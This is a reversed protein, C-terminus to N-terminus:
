LWGKITAWISKSPAKVPTAGADTQPLASTEAAPASTESAAVQAPSIVSAFAPLKSLTLPGAIGDADLGHSAQFAAVAKATGPGFQGDAGIGLAEQLKKVTTGSAGPALLVLESLGMQMFTDPGAVGDASLGEKKQYAILAAETGPGFDGDANVGLKAQLIKVPEGTVGKRLYSM